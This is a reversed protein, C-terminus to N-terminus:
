RRCRDARYRRREFILAFVDGIEGRMARADDPDARHELFEAQHRFQGDFFVEEEAAFDGGAAEEIASGHAGARALDHALEIEVQPGVVLHRLQRAGVLLHHFDGLREQGFHAQEDEVFRRSREGIGLGGLEEVEDGLEFGGADADDVHRVAHALDLLDGVADRDQAVAVLDLRHGGVVNRFGLQDLQHGAALDAHQERGDRVQGALLKELDLM